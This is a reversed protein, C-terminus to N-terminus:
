NRDLKCPHAGLDQIRAEGWDLRNTTAISRLTAIGHLHTIISSDVSAGRMPDAPHAAMMLTQTAHHQELRLLSAAPGRPHHPGLGAAADAAHHEM